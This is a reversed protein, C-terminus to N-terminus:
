VGQFFPKRKEKFAARGETFDKSRLLSPQEVMEAALVAELGDAATAILRKSARVALPASAALEAILAHAAILASGPTSVVDVLGIRLADVGSLVSCSLMLRLAEVRGVRRSLSWALGADAALGIRGFSACLRADAAAVIFDCAAALSLGSGYAYGEIAAVVPKDGMAILRLISHSEELSSGANPMGDPKASLDGGACFTDGTGTLIIFVCQEDALAADFAARIWAKCEQTLANRRTGDGIRITVVGYPDSM